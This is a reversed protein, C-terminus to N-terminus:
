GLIEKAYDVTQKADKAYRDAGIESAYEETLVAGGVVIKCQHGSERLAEITEKMSKLTTTMLASLGILKVNERKATKARIADKEQVNRARHRTMRAM